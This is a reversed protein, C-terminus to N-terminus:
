NININYKKEIDKKSASLSSKNWLLHKAWFGATTIGSKSWNENKKHRTIYRDKQKEDGTKTFDDAGSQGIHITKTKGDDYTLVIKYKKKPNDSKSVEVKM